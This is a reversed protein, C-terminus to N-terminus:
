PAWTGNYSVTLYHTADRGIMCIKDGAAGGSTMATNVSEYAARSTKEFYVGSIAAITIVTSVNDDNLACFEYGAAPTPLTVTCTTTCVAYGRPASLTIASGPTPLPTPKPFLSQWYYTPNASGDYRVSGVEMDFTGNAALPNNCFVTGIAWLPPTGSLASAFENPGLAQCPTSAGYTAGHYDLFTSGGNGMGLPGVAFQTKLNGNEQFRAAPITGYQPMIAGHSESGLIQYTTSASSEITYATTSDNATNQFITYATALTTSPLVVNICNSPGSLTTVKVVPSAATHMLANSAQYWIYEDTSNPLSGGGCGTAATASVISQAVQHPPQVITVTATGYPRVLVESDLYFPQTQSGNFLINWNGYIDYDLGQGLGQESDAIEVRGSTGSDGQFTPSLTGTQGISVTYGQGTAIHVGGGSGTAGTVVGMVTWDFENNNTGGGDALVEFQSTTTTGQECFGNWVRGVTGGFHLCGGFGTIDVNIMSEVNADGATDDFNIGWGTTNLTDDNKVNMNWFSHYSCLIFSFGTPCSVDIGNGVHYVVKVGSPSAETVGSTNTLILSSISGGSIAFTGNNGSHVLDGSVTATYGIWSASYGPFYGSVTMNPTSFSIATVAAPDGFHLNTAGSTALHGHGAGYLSFGSYAGDLPCSSKINGPPLSYALGTMAAATLVACNDYVGTADLGAIYPLPIQSTLAPTGSSTPWTLTGGGSLTATLPFKISASSFDQLFAGYANTQNTQVVTGPVSSACLGNNATCLEYGGYKTKGNTTLINQDASPDLSVGGLNSLTTAAGTGQFAIAANNAMTGGALPLKTSDAVTCTSGLTCTQGNVTTSANSAAKGNFTGWDTLSLYGNHSADAVHGCVLVGTGDTTLIQCSVAIGAGNFINTWAGAATTACTGGSQIPTAGSPCSQAHICASAICMFAISLIRKM